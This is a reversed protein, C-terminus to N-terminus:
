PSPGTRAVAQAPRRARMDRMKRKTAIRAIRQQATMPPRGNVSLGNTDLVRTPRYGMPHPATSKGAHPGVLITIQRYNHGSINIRILGARALVAAQNRQLDAIDRGPCRIGRVAADELIAFARMVDPRDAFQELSM